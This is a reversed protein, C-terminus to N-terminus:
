CLLILHEGVPQTYGLYHYQQLLSNFLGEEGTRRVQRLEVPGIESLRARLPSAEVEVPRPAGRRALPNCPRKVIPPLKILGARHLELMLGRCVMDRLAGNPQVWNWVQCLKTSLQRRSVKPHAAILERIFGVDAESLHRHRYSFIAEM